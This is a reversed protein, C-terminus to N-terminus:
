EGGGLTGTAGGSGEKGNTVVVDTSGSSSLSMVGEDTSSDRVDDGGRSELAGAEEEATLERDGDMGATEAKALFRIGKDM